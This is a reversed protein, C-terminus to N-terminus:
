SRSAATAHPTPRTPRPPRRRGAAWGGSLVTIAGATGLAILWDGSASPHHQTLTAAQGAIPASNDFGQAAPATGAALSAVAAFMPVARHIRM